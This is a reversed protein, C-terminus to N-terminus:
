KSKKANQKGKGKNKKHSQVSKESSSDSGSLGEQKYWKSLDKMTYKLKKVGWIETDSLVELSDENQTLWQVMKPYNSVTSFTEKVNYWNTKGFFLTVIALQTTASTSIEGKSKKSNWLGIAKHCAVFKQYNFRIDHNGEQTL